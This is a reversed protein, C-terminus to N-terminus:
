LIFANKKLCGKRTQRRTAGPTATQAAEDTSLARRNESLPVAKKQKDATNVTRAKNRTRNQKPTKFCKEPSEDPSDVYVHVKGERNGVLHGNNEKKKKLGTVTKRSHGISEFQKRQEGDEPSSFLVVRRGSEQVTRGVSGPPTAPGFVDDLEEAGPSSAPVRRLLRFRSPGAGRRATCEPTKFSEAVPSLREDEGNRDVSEGELDSIHSLADKEALLAIDMQQRWAECWLNQDNVGALLTFAHENSKLAMGFLCQSCLLDSFHLLLKVRSITFSECTPLVLSNCVEEPFLVRECWREMLKARKATLREALRIGGKFFDLATKKDDHYFHLVAELMTVDLTLHQAALNACWTCSCCDGHSVFEPMSFPEKRLVPSGDMDDTYACDRWIDKQDGEGLALSDLQMVLGDLEAPSGKMPSFMERFSLAQLCLIFRMGVVKVHADDLAGCLVDVQALLSLFQVTRTAFALKQALILDGTLYCRAERPWCLQLFQWGRYLSTEFLVYLMQYYTCVSGSGSTFSAVYSRIYDFATRIVLSVQAEGLEDPTVVEPWLLLYKAVLVKYRVCLLMTAYKSLDPMKKLFQVGEEYRKNIYCNASRSLYYLFLLNKTTSSSNSDIELEDVIDVMETFKPHDNKCVVEEMLHCLATLCARRDGVGRGLKYYLGWVGLGRTRLGYVHYISAAAELDDFQAALNVDGHPAAENSLAETWYSVAEDVYHLVEQEKVVTLDAYAPIEDCEDNPDPVSGTNCIKKTPFVRMADVEEKQKAHIRKFNHLFLCFHMQAVFFLHLQRESTPCNKSAKKLRYIAEQCLAVASDCLETGQARWMCHLKVYLARCYPVCQSPPVTSYAAEVSGPLNVNTRHYAELEMATLESYNLGVYNLNPNIAALKSKQTTLLDQVTIAQINEDDSNKKKVDAWLVFVSSRIAPPTSVIGVACALLASKAKNLGLYVSVLTDLTVFLGDKFCVPELHSDELLLVGQYLTVLLDRALHFMSLKVCISALNYCDVAVAKWVTTWFVDASKMELLTNVCKGLVSVAQPVLTRFGPTDHGASKYVCHLVMSDLCVSLRLSARDGARGGLQQSVSLLLFHLRTQTSVGLLDNWRDACMGDWLHTRVDLAVRAASVLMVDVAERPERSLDALRGVRENCSELRAALTEADKSAFLLIVERLTTLCQAHVSGAGVLVGMCDFAAGLVELGLSLENVVVYSKLLIATMFCFQQFVTKLDSLQVNSGAHTKIASFVKLHLLKMNASSCKALHGFIQGVHTGNVYALILLAGEFVSLWIKSSEETQNGNCKIELAKSLDLFLLHLNLYINEVNLDSQKYNEATVLICELLVLSDEIREKQVLLRAIHYLSTVFNTDASLEGLELARCCVESLECAADLESASLEGKVSTTYYALQIFLGRAEEQHSGSGLVDKLDDVVERLKGDKIKKLRLRTAKNM